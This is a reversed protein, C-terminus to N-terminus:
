TVGDYFLYDGYLDLTDGQEIHIKSFATVQNKDPFYHASDCSMYYKMINLLFM